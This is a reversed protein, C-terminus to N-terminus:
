PLFFGDRCHSLDCEVAASCPALLTSLHILRNPPKQSFLRLHFIGVDETFM